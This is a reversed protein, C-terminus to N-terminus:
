LLVRPACPVNAPASTSIVVLSRATGNGLRVSRNPISDKHYYVKDPQIQTEPKFIVIKLVEGVGGPFM